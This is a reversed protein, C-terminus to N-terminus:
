SLRQNIQSTLGEPRTLCWNLLYDNLENLFQVEPIPVLVNRRIYGVTGEVRGKENGSAHNCFEANFVYHAQFGIFSEQELRDRGQLIKLVATILNDLLGEPPVGGLFEFAHVFGDLFAEQKEHLYARVFRM